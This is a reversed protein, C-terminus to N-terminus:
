SNHSAADAATGAGAASACTMDDSWRATGAGLIASEM